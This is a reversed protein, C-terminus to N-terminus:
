TNLVMDKMSVNEDQIKEKDVHIKNSIWERALKGEEEPCTSMIFAAVLRNNNFWWTSFDGSKLSGRYRVDNAEENDGFYEYSY